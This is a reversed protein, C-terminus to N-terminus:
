FANLNNNQLFTDFVSFYTSCSKLKTFIQARDTRGKQCKSSVFQCLVSRLTYLYLFKYKLWLFRLIPTQEALLM